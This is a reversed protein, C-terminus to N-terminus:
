VRRQNTKVTPQPQQPRKLPYKVTKKWMQNNTKTPKKKNTNLPKKWMQNNTKTPKKKNTNLPKKWMQNNTITPTPQKKKITQFYANFFCTKISNQQGNTSVLINLCILHRHFVDKTECLNTILCKLSLIHHFWIEPTHGVSVRVLGICVFDPLTMLLTPSAVSMLIALGGQWPSWAALNFWCSQFEKPPDWKWFDM